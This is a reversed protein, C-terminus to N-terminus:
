KNDPALTAVIRDFRPDRRLADWQPMLKVEGYSLGAAHKACIGLEELAADKEGTWAYITALNAVWSPGDWTDNSLPLLECARRGERIADEKRGLGADIMGLCSWAAAYEPQDRVTKGVIKRAAAFATQASNADGFSRGVLGVFWERPLLVNNYPDV